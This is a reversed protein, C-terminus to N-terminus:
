DGKTCNRDCGIHKHNADAALHDDALATYDKDGYLRLIEIERELKVVRQHHAKNAEHRAVIDTKLEEITRELNFVIKCTEDYDFGELSLAPILIEPTKSM